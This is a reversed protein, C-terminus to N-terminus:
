VSLVFTFTSGRGAESEVWVRGGHAQVINKVITLGLGTGQFRRSGDPSAQHFKEFIMSISEKPIGSGTDTVSVNLGADTRRVAVRVSGGCPTFKLANGLLNRLVQMIREADVSVSPIEGIDSEIRIHKAEALPAVERVSQAVLPSLDTKVFHFTVMGAELKALDLLPNVLKILRDSEEAVITLLERQKETVEGGSGELFLNTGEKISTLPTRLEHSMLSYFDSKMRDVEKLKACMTNFAQALAGIEPPSPLNLDAEFVGEAIEGTKKKMRSLPVTISATISLSLAVGLLLASGTIVGAVTRAKTGAEDLNKVKQLISQQNLARLGALEEMAENVVREKDLSHEEPDFNGAKVAAVEEEFLAQYARHLDRVRSLIDKVEASDALVTAEELYKEFDNKSTLFVEYLTQDHLIAFKKESRTESLLADTLNKHLNILTTDVLLISNTIQRVQGLQLISYMGMGTAMVLLALYSLMLRYFITM